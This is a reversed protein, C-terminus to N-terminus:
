QNIWHKSPKKSEITERTLVTGWGLCTIEGRDVKSKPNAADISFPDDGGHRIIKGTEGSVIDVFGTNLAVALCKGTIQTLQLVLGLLNV